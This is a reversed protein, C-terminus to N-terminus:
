ILCQYNHEDLINVTLFLLWFYQIGKKNLLFFFSLRERERTVDLVFCAAERANYVVWSFKGTCCGNALGM